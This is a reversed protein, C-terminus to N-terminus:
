YSWYLESILFAKLHSPVFLTSHIRTTVYWQHPGRSIVQFDVRSYALREAKVKTITQIEPSPRWGGFDLESYILWWSQPTNMALIDLAVHCCYVRLHKMMVLPFLFITFGGWWRELERCEGSLSTVQLKLLFLYNHQYIHYTNIKWNLLQSSLNIKNLRLTKKFVICWLVYKTWTKM